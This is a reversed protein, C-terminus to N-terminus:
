EDHVACTDWSFGSPLADLRAGHDKYDRRIYHGIAVLAVTSAGADKLASAASQASAGTTWTDDILLVRLGDLPRTAAYRQADFEHSDTGDGTAYLVREFRERTQGCMEGVMTRLQGREEDRDPMKSPVVTVLDFGEVGAAAAVCAEHKVLFLWLVATLSRLSRQRVIEVGNDKYGRLVTHLQGLGPAYSIIAVADLHKPNFGCGYNEDYGDKPFGRCLGCIGPGEDAMNQM